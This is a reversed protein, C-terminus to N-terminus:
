SVLAFLLGTAREFSGTKECGCGDGGSGDDSGSDPEGDADTDTDSDTDGDADSDVDGASVEFGISVTRAHGDEGVVVLDQYQTGTGSFDTESCSLSLTTVNGSSVQGATPTIALWSALGGVPEVLFSMPGDGFCLELSLDDQVVDGSGDEAQALDPAEIECMINEIVSSDVELVTAQAGIGTADGRKIEFFGNM